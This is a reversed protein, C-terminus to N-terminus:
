PRYYAQVPIAKGKGKGQMKNSWVAAKTKFDEKPATTSVPLDQKNLV